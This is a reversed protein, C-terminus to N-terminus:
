EAAGLTSCEDSQSSNAVYAPVCIKGGTDLNSNAIVSGAVSDSVTVSYTHQKSHISCPPSTNVTQVEVRQKKTSGSSASDTEVFSVRKEISRKGLQMAPTLQM